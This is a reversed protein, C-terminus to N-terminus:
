GGGCPRGPGRKPGCVLVAETIVLVGAISAAGRVVKAPDIIGPQRGRDQGQRDTPLFVARDQVPRFNSM